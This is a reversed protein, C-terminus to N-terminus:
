DPSLCLVRAKSIVNRLQMQAGNEDGWKILAPFVFCAVRGTQLAEEDLGGVDEMFEGDFAPLTTSTVDDCQPPLGHDVRLVARQVALLRALDVAKKVLVALSSDRNTHPPSPSSSSTSLLAELLLNIRDVVNDVLATTQAQLLVSAPNQLLALTSSRWQNIAEGPAALSCLLDEMRRYDRTQEESLGVFYAGFVSDVLIRSVASQLLHIKASRLLLLDYSPVLRRLEALTEDDVRSVDLKAKRFNIIVWNQLGNALWAMADGFVEDSTQQAGLCRTSSSVFEKLGRVQASLRGVDEDRRGLERRIEEWGRLLEEREADRREAETRLLRLETDSELFQRHLASHKAQWFTSTQSEDRLFDRQMRAMEEELQAIRKNKEQLQQKLPLDDTTDSSNSSSSDTTTTTTTTMMMTAESGTQPVHSGGRRKEVHQMTAEPADSSKHQDWLKASFLKFRAGKPWSSVDIASAEDGESGEVKKAGMRCIALKTVPIDQAWVFGDYRRLLETADVELRGRRGGSGGGGGQRGRRSNTNFLTAHLLLPRGEDQMLGSDLFPKRLQECLRRLSGEGSDETPPAYVVSTKSAKQMTRLGRLTVSLRPPVPAEGEEEEAKSRSGLEALVKGPKTEALMGRAREVDEEDKLTFVGLTLHLTGLPRVAEEPLGYDAVAARFTAWGRALQPGALPISLFHTPRGM